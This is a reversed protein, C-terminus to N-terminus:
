TGTSHVLKLYFGYIPSANSSHTIKSVALFVIRLYWGERNGTESEASEWLESVM